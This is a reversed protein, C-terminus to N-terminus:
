ADREQTTRSFAELLRDIRILVDVGKRDPDMNLEAEPTRSM